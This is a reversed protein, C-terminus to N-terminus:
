PKPEQIPVSPMASSHHHLIQWGGDEENKRFMFSFRGPISVTQGDKDFSFTYYGSYIARKQGEMQVEGAVDDIQLNDKNLFGKFYELISQNDRALDTAMTGWFTADPAYLASVAFPDCTKMMRVWLSLAEKVDEVDQQHVIDDFTRVNTSIIKAPEGM